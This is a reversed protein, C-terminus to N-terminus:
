RLLSLQMIFLRFNELSVQILNIKTLLTIVTDMTKATGTIKVKSLGKILQRGFSHRQKNSQNTTGRKVVRPAM